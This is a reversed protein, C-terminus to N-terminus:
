RTSESTGRLSQVEDIATQWNAAKRALRRLGFRNVLNQTGTVNVMEKENLMLVSHDGM